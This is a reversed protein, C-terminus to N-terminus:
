RAPTRVAPKITWAQRKALEMMAPAKFDPPFIVWTWLKPNDDQVYKTTALAAPTLEIKEPLPKDDLRLLAAKAVAALYAEPTVAASGLWVASPVRGHKRFYDAVDTATRAFQSADATVSAPMKPPAESPGFPTPVLKVAQPRDGAVYENLLYLVESPALAFGDHRQFDLGKAAREAVAKLREPTYAKDAARDRYLEHAESATVFKVDAFRKIFRIYDFFSQYATKSEDETKAEPNKWRERPPNAGKSFNAGDWFQKHVFECPHYYISVLGGGDALIKRRAEVFREQAKAVDKEGGLDSRLTHEHDYVTFVGCYYHPQRDLGVHRGADLYVPMQWRRMAGYSQPGWSSGPQGYCTPAQGFVRKVDDYGPKERRDFEAVGEDWGLASLYVAPTPQVSHYNSHYGIEHKRVADIVDKRGRKELTRAKEGVVKFTAKIEEKTLWDAVKLAADDSAPLIYDETDFWLLVSVVPKPEAAGCPVAVLLLAFVSLSRAM